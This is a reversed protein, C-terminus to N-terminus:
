IINGLQTRTIRFAHAPINLKTGLDNVLSRIYTGSTVDVSFTARWVHRLHLDEWDSYIDGYEFKGPNLREVDKIDNICESLYDTISIQTPHPQLAHIENVQVTKRPLVEPLTGDISHQWLPKGQYRYSSCPPLEQEITGVIKSMKTFFLEAEQHTIIKYNTIRGMPDYSSTSIGLIAQFRYTKSVHNYKPAQYIMDGFLITILGQAMPDLRCTYCGKVRRPIAREDRVREMVQLPTEGIKKWALVVHM